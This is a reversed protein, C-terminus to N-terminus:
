VSVLSQAVRVEGAEWVCVFYIFTISPSNMHVPLTSLEQQVLSICKYTTNLGTTVILTKKTLSFKSLTKSSVQGVM